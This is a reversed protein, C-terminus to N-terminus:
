GVMWASSLCIISNEIVLVANGWLPIIGISYVRSPASTLGGSEIPLAWPLGPRPLSPCGYGRFPRVPLNKGAPIVPRPDIANTAPVRSLPCRGFTPSQHCVVDRGHPMPHRASLGRRDRTEQVDVFPACRRESRM